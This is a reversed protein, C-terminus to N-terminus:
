PGGEAITGQAARDYVAVHWMWSKEQRVPHFRNARLTSDLRGVDHVFARFPDRRVRRWANELGIVARALMGRVGRSAPVSFAVVRRSVASANALLRDPDPFCCISKDLVVVDHPQIAASAADGVQFEARDGLGSDRARRRAVEISSPSLDVGTARAAGRRLTEVALAGMGCGLDLISRGQIGVDELHDLLTGSVGAVGDGLDAGTRCCPEAERDFFRSIPETGVRSRYRGM